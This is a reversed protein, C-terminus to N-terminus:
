VLPKGIKSNNETLANKVVELCATTNESGTKEFYIVKKEVTM